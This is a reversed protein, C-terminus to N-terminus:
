AWPRTSFFTGEAFRISSSKWSTSRQIASPICRGLRNFIAFGAASAIASAERIGSSQCSCIADGNGIALRVRVARRGFRVARPFAARAMPRPIHLAESRAKHNGLAVGAERSKGVCRSAVVSMAWILRREDDRDILEDSPVPRV